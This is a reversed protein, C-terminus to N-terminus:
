LMAVNSTLSSWQMLLWNVNTLDPYTCDTHFAHCDLVHLSEGWKRNSQGEACGVYGCGTGCINGGLHAGFRLFEECMGM